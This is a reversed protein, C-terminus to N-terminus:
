LLSVFLRAWLCFGLFRSVRQWRPPAQLYSTIGPSPDRPYKKRKHLRYEIVISPKNKKKKSPKTLRTLEGETYFLKTWTSHQGHGSKQMEWKNSQLFFVKTGTHNQIQIHAYRCMCTSLCVFTARYKYNTCSSSLIIVYFVFFYKLPGFGSIRHCCPWLDTCKIQWKLIINFVM